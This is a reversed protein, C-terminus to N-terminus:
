SQVWPLGDHRWGGVTNRHRRGDADGEFGTKINYCNRYGAATMILAAERSRGGSRCLFLIPADRDPCEAAVQAVFDKNPDMAPFNKWPVLVPEKDIGSLDVIGVFVLEAKTRVDVLVAKPDGELMVWAETPSLDGAYGAAPPTPM